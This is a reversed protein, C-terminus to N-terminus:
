SWDVGQLRSMASIVPFSNFDPKLLPIFGDRDQVDAPTIAVGLM